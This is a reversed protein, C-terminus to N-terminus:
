KYGVYVTGERQGTGRGYLLYMCKYSQLYVLVYHHDSNPKGRELFRSRNTGRKAATLEQDPNGDLRIVELAEYAIV